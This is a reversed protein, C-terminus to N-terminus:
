KEEKKYDIDLAREFLRAAEDYFRREGYCVMYDKEMDSMSHERLVKVDKLLSALSDTSFALGAITAYANECGEAIQKEEGAMRGLFSVFENIAEKETLNSM